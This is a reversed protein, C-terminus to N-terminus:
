NTDKEANKNGRKEFVHSSQLRFALQCKSKERGDIMKNSKKPFLVKSLHTFFTMTQSRHNTPKSGNQTNRHKLTWQKPDYNHNVAAFFLITFTAKSSLLEHTQSICLLNGM